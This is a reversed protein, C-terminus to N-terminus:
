AAVRSERNGGASPRLDVFYRDYDADIFQHRIKAVPFDLERFLQKVEQNLRFNFAIANLTVDITQILSELRQRLAAVIRAAISPKTESEFVVTFDTRATAGERPIEISIKAEPRGNVMEVQGSTVRANRYDYSRRLIAREAAANVRPADEVLTSIEERANRSRSKCSLVFGEAEDPQFGRMEIRAGDAGAEGRHLLQVVADTADEVTSAHMAHDGDGFVIRISRDERRELLIVGPLLPDDGGGPSGGGPFMDGGGWGDNGGQLGRNALPPEPPPVRGGVGPLALAVERPRPPTDPVTRLMQQLREAVIQPEEEAAKAVPRVLSSARAYDDPHVRVVRTEGREIVQPAGRVVDDAIEIHTAESYVNHGGIVPIRDNWSIVVVPTHIWSTSEAAVEKAFTAPVNRLDALASLIHAQLGFDDSEQNGARMEVLLKEVEASLEAIDAESPESMTLFNKRARVYEETGAEFGAAELLAEIDRRSTPENKKAESSVISKALSGALATIEEDPMNKIEDNLETELRERVKKPLENRAVPTSGGAVGFATFIQYLATYQVVRVLNPDNLTAFYHYGAEEAEAIASTQEEDFGEPLYSVPLAGTRNLAFIDDNANRVIYGAGATNWNYTLAEADLQQRLPVPFPFKAPRPYAQFNIYQTYGCNTWGKLIQDTIDLLSGYETDVLEPSLLIPAWDRGDSMAGAFRAQREYSQQLEKRADGQVAALLRITEFRLPPLQQIPVVRERGIVLVGSPRSIAGVILDSDLAFQRAEVALGDMGIEKPIWWVVLGRQASFYVRSQSSAFIEDARSSMGGAVPMFQGNERVIWTAIEAATVNLNLKQRGPAPAAPLPLVHRKYSTRFMVQNLRSAIGQLVSPDGSVRMVVDRVWGDYGVPQTRIRYVIVASGAAGLIDDITVDPPPESVIITWSGDEHPKSTIGIEQIHFPFSKRFQDWVPDAMADADVSKARLSARAADAQQRALTQLREREAIVDPDDATAPTLAAAPAPGIGCGFLWFALVFLVAPKM